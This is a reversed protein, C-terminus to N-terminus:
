RTASANFLWGVFFNCVVVAGFFAIDVKRQVFGGPM